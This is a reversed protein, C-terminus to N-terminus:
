FQEWDGSDAPPKQVPMAKEPTRSPLRQATPTVDISRKASVPSLAAKRIIPALETAGLKFVSVARSLKEAQDQLSAAAAAAQEVLAANQQTAQDMQTIALNIQGIGDSQEQSAATIESVIDTVHRVSAVVEEMTVGAQAVLKSGNGVKEVSDNILQKIEKAAGASRQALNRVESAVVAFGRGQEGARAAEVAANLALINTQFAIGDIVSIIDVIKRSSANISEMTDVVEGVVSGGRAAVTSASMALQNAQRANDANKEVTSTLEEMASATEELSGAQEETRSSLDMNGNAIQTSAAAVTDTGTRVQRVIQLLNDNMERLAQMLQGTEDTSAAHIDATLDGAAVRQAVEVAVNLPRTISRTVWWASFVGLAVACLVVGALFEIEHLYDTEMEAVSTRNQAEQVDIMGQIATFWQDQPAQVNALLYDAGEKENSADAFAIVKDLEPRVATKGNAIDISLKKAAESRVLSALTKFTEDYQQRSTAILTKQKARFAPDSSLLINRTARVELNLFGRMANASAIKVNNDGVIVEIRQRTASLAQWSVVAVMLLLLLVAGFSVGLRAGIKLNGYRM